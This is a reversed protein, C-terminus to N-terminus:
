FLEEECAFYPTLFAQLEQGSIHAYRATMEESVHGLNKKLQEMSAGALLQQTVYTARFQHSHLVYSSGDVDTIHWRKIFNRLRGGNWNTQSVPRIGHNRVLFLEVRGSEQRLSETAQRLRMIAECVLANAPTRHLVPEGRQTKKLQYCLWVSGDVERRLCDARLSLVESIRLGTQSQVLIGCRTVEDTENDRAHRVIQEYVFRPIPQTRGRKVLETEPESNQAQQWAGFNGSFISQPLPEATVQWGLRQGTTLLQHVTALIRSRYAASVSKACLWFYFSGYDDATFCRADSIGRAALYREWHCLYGRLEQRVTVPKVRGLRWFAYQKILQKVQVGALNTFRLAIRRVQQGRKPAYEYLLWEDSAFDFYARAEAQVMTRKRAQNM